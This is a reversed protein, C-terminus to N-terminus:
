GPQRERAEFLADIASALDGLTRVDKVSEPPIPIGLRDELEFLLELFDLSDIGLQQIQTDPDLSDPERGFQKAVLETIKQLTDM